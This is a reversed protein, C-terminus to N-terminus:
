RTSVVERDRFTTVAAIGTLVPLRALSERRRTM